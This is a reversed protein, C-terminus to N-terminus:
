CGVFLNCEPEHQETQPIYSNHTRTHTHTHCEGPKSSEHQHDTGEHKEREGDSPPYKVETDTERLVSNSVHVMERGGQPLDAGRESDDEVHNVSVPDATDVSDTADIRDVHDADNHDVTNTPDARDFPDATNPHDARDPPDATDPPDTRGPHNHDVRDIQDDVENDVASHSMLIDRRMVDVSLAKQRLHSSNKPVPGINWHIQEIPLDNAPALHVINIDSGPLQDRFHLLLGLTTMAVFLSLLKANRARVRLCMPFPM